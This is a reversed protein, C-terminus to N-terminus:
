GDKQETSPMARCQRTMIAAMCRCCAEISDMPGWSLFNGPGTLSRGWCWVSCGQRPWSLTRLGLESAVMRSYPQSVDAMCRAQMLANGWLVEAAQETPCQVLAVTGLVGCVPGAM